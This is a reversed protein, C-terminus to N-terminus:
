RPFFEIPVRTTVVPVGPKNGFDIRKILRILQEELSTANLESDIIRCRTVRGSPAITISMVLKGQLTADRRLELNYIRYMASKNRDLIEQIEEESRVVGPQRVLTGASLPPTGAGRVVGQGGSGAKAPLGTPGLVSEHGAGGEIGTSGRTIDAALMSPKQTETPLGRVAAASGAATTKPAISRLEVLADSMAMLGAQAAKQRPTAPPKIQGPQPKTDPTKQPEPPGVAIPKKAVPQSPEPLSATAPRQTAPRSATQPPVAPLARQEIIRVLRPPLEVAMDPELLPVQITPIIGGVVFCIVLVQVLIRRFRRDEAQSDMWPLTPQLSNTAM